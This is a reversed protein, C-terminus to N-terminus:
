YLCRLKEYQKKTINKFTFGRVTGIGQCAESVNSSSKLGLYKKAQTQSPYVRVIKSGDMQAVPRINKLLWNVSAHQSNESRTVWQLNDKHNNIKVGDIHNVCPKNLSNDVWEKAVIRHFIKRTAKKSKYLSISYYGNKNISPKLIRKTIISRIKGTDSVEYDPFDAVMKWNDIVREKSM